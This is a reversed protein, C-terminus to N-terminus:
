QCVATILPSSTCPESSYSPPLSSHWALALVLIALRSLNVSLLSSTIASFMSEPSSTSDSDPSQLFATTQLIHLLISSSSPRRLPLTNRLQRVQVSMYCRHSAAGLAVKEKLARPKSHVVFCTHVTKLGGSRRHEIRSRDVICARMSRFM